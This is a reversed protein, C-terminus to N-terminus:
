PHFPFILPAVVLTVVVLLSNCTRDVRFDEWLEFLSRGQTGTGITRAEGPLLGRGIFLIYSIAVALVAAGVLSFSFFGFGEYGADVLEEHVVLNSTTAILTLMGSILAAYSMPILM